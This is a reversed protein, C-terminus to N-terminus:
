DAGGIVHMTGAAVAGALPGAWMTSPKIELGITKNAVLNAALGSLAGIGASIAIQGLTPPKWAKRNKKRRAM